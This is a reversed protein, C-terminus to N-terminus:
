FICLNSDRRVDNYYADQETLTIMEKQGAVYQSGDMSNGGIRIRLPGSMRAKINSLYNKLANPMTDPSEGGIYLFNDTVHM